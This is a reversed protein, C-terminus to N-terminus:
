TTSWLNSPIPQEQRTPHNGSISLVLTPNETLDSFFQEAAGLLSDISKFLHNYTVKARLYKWVLEILNLNPSCTPLHFVELRDAYRALTALSLKNKFRFQDIESHVAYNDLVIVVKPGTYVEGKCYRRVAEEILQCFSQSDKHEFYLSILTGDTYNLTDFGYRKQNAGPTGFAVKLL